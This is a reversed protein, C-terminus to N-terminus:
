IISDIEYKIKLVFSFSHHQLTVDSGIGLAFAQIVSINEKQFNWIKEVFTIEMYLHMGGQKFLDANRKGLFVYQM